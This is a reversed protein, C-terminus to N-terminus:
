LIPKQYINRIRRFPYSNNQSFPSCMEEVILINTGTMFKGTM